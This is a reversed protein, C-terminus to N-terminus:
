PRLHLTSKHLSEVFGSFCEKAKCAMEKNSHILPEPLSAEPNFVSLSASVHVIRHRYQIYRQIDELVSSSIDLGGFKVNYGKNYAAKAKKYNQFNIVGRSVVHELLSKGESKAEKELTEKIGILIEEKPYFENIIAEVESFIGEKELELFRKKLYTEFGTVLVTLTLNSVVVEYMYGESSVGTELLDIAKITERWAEIATPQLISKGAVYVSVNGVEVGHDGIQYVCGDRGVRYQRQSVKGIATLMKEADGKADDTKPKIHLKIKEPSWVCGIMVEDTPQFNCLNISAIRTDTGPSSHYFNLGMNQDREIRFYHQGSSVEIVIGGPNLEDFIDDTSSNFLFTGEPRCINERLKELDFAASKYIPSIDV